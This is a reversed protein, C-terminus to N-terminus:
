WPDRAHRGRQGLQVGDAGAHACLFQSRQFSVKPTSMRGVRRRGRSGALRKAPRLRSSTHWRWISCGSWRCAPHAFSLCGWADPKHFVRAAPSALISMSLWFLRRRLGGVLIFAPGPLQVGEISVLVEVDCVLDAPFAPAGVCLVGGFIGVLFWLALWKVDDAAIRPFPNDLSAIGGARPDVFALWHSILSRYM